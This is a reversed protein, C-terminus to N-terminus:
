SGPTTGPRSSGTGPTRGGSGSRRVVAPRSRASRRSGPRTVVGQSSPLRVAEVVLHLPVELMMPGQPSKRVAEPRPLPEEIRRIALGAERLYRSYTTLTRHYSVTWGTTTGEMDWPVRVSREDRYARVKRWVVDHWHGDPERVREVVWGSREDLDFCPHALSFVFRGDPALVKAVERVTGEADEIDLLAMNAVVLDFAERGFRALDTASTRVFRAGTPSTKERRRAHALSRASLDIGVAVAAGERAWRRTLYGNGCALDLVRHGRVPGVVKLLTPDIIARHWLDGGEGMRADRWDAMADWGEPSM